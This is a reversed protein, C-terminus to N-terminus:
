DSIQADACGGIFMSIVMGGVTSAAMMMMILTVGTFAWLLGSAVILSDRTPTYRVIDM